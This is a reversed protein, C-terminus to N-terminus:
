KKKAIFKKTDKKTKADDTDMSDAMKKTMKMKMMNKDKAKAKAM